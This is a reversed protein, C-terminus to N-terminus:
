SSKNKILPVTQVPIFVRVVLSICLVMGVVFLARGLQQQANVLYNNCLRVPSATYLWSMVFIMSIGNGWIFAKSISGLLKWSYFLSVGAILPLTIYKLTEMLPSNVAADISRPLIWFTVVFLTVLIGAIGNENFYLIETKWNSPLGKGIFYGSCVLLPIQVLMTGIMSSELLLRTYPFAVILIVVIGIILHRLQYM